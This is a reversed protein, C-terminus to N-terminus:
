QRCRWFGLGLLYFVGLLIGDLLSSAKLGFPNFWSWQPTISGAPHTGYVKILAVIAFASLILIEASLLIQQVRASLEIGRYCIWTMLAIWIVSGIIIALNSNAAATWGFLLFTYSSAIAALSAMIIVDALVIAWGNLWGLTPGLARTAWAFTTGADPDVRNLSRYAGAILLMPIFSVLLVAPAHVGVGSVLVIFGLTAALSYAPATSAVGIVLNSIFGIADKKLGKEVVERRPGPSPAVSETAM